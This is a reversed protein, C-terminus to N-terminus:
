TIQHIDRCEVLWKKISHLTTISTNSWNCQKQTVTEWLNQQPILFIYTILVLTQAHLPNYTHWLFLFLYPKKKNRTLQQVLKPNSWLGACTQCTWNDFSWHPHCMMQVLRAPDSILCGHECHACIERWSHLNQIIFFRNASYQVTKIYHWKTKNSVEWRKRKFCFSVWVFTSCCCTYSPVQVFQQVWVRKCLLKPVPRQLFSGVVCSHNPSLSSQCVIFLYFSTSINKRWECINLLVLRAKRNHKLYDEYTLICKRDCVSDLDTLTWKKKWM